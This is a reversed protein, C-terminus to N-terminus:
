ALSPQVASPACRCDGDPGVTTFTTALPCVPHCQCQNKDDIVAFEGVDCPHNDCLLSSRKKGKFNISDISCCRQGCVGNEPSMNIQIQNETCIEPAIRVVACDM